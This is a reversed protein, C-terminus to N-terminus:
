LYRNLAQFSQETQSLFDFVIAGSFEHEPTDDMQLIQAFTDVHIAHGVARIPGLKNEDPTMIIHRQSHKSYLHQLPAPHPHSAQLLHIRTVM